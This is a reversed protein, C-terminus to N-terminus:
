WGINRWREEKFEVLYTQCTFVIAIESNNKKRVTNVLFAMCQVLWGRKTVNRWMEWTTTKPERLTESAKASLVMACSLFHHKIMCIMGAETAEPKDPKWHLSLYPTSMPSNPSNNERTSMVQKSEEGSIIGLQKKNFFDQIDEHLTMNMFLVTNIFRCRSRQKISLMPVTDKAVFINTTIPVTLAEFSVAPRSTSFTTAALFATSFPHYNLKNHRVKHHRIIMRLM